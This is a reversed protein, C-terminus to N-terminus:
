MKSQRTKRQIISNLTIALKNVNFDRMQLKSEALQQETRAKELQLKQQM